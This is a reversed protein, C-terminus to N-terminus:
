VRERAAACAEVHRIDAVVAFLRLPDPKAGMFQHALAEDCSLEYRIHLPWQMANTYMEAVFGAEGTRVDRLSAYLLVPRPGVIARELEASYIASPLRGNFAVAWNSGANWRSAMAAIRTQLQAEEAVYASDERKEQKQHQYLMGVLFILTGLAAAVKPKVSEM